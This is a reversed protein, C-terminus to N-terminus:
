RCSTTSTCPWTWPTRNTFFGYHTSKKKFTCLSFGDLICYQQFSPIHVDSTDTLGMMIRTTDPPASANALHVNMLLECLDGRWLDCFWSGCRNWIPGFWWESLLRGIYDKSTNPTDLNPKFAGCGAVISCMIKLTTGRTATGWLIAAEGFIWRLETSWTLFSPRPSKGTSEVWAYEPSWSSMWWISRSIWEMNSDTLSKWRRAIRPRQLGSVKVQELKCSTISWSLNAESGPDEQDKEQCAGLRNRQFILTM